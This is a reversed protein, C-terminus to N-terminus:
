GCWSVFHDAARRRRTSSRAEQAQWLVQHHPLHYLHPWSLHNDVNLLSLGPDMNDPGYHSTVLMDFIAVWLLNGLLLAKIVRPKAQACVQLPLSWTLITSLALQRLTACVIIFGWIDWCFCL